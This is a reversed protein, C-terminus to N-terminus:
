LMMMIQAFNKERARKAITFWDILTWIGCGGCTLLKAIGAGIEGLMFRDIGLAGVLVSVVTLIAPDKFEMSSVIALKDEEVGKLKDKIYVVKELPFYKQNGMVFMDIKQQDM